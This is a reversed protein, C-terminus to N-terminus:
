DIWDLQYTDYQFQNVRTSPVRRRQSQELCTMSLITSARIIKILLETNSTPCTKTFADPVQSKSAVWFVNRLIQSELAKRIASIGIKVRKEKPENTSKLLQQLSQSDM